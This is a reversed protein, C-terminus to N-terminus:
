RWSSKKMMMRASGDPGREVDGDNRARALVVAHVLIMPMTCNKKEIKMVTSKTM